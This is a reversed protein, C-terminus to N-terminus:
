SAGRAHTSLVQVRGEANAAITSRHTTGPREITLRFATLEGDSFIMIHPKFNARDRQELQRAQTATGLVVNHSDVQLSLRLGTPLRRVSLASGPPFPTWLNTRPDFELFRYGHETCYLGLQRTELSAQDIAYNMRDVLRERATDLQSDHGLVGLSLVAGATIVAIIACVVLIEILTFGRARSIARAARIAQAPPHAAM